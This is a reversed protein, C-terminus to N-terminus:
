LVPHLMHATTWRCLRAGHAPALAGRAAACNRRPHGCAALGAALFAASLPMLQQQQLGAKMVCQLMPPGFNFSCAAILHLASWRDCLLFGGTCGGGCDSAREFAKGVLRCFPAYPTPRPPSALDPGAHQGSQFGWLSAAAGCSAGHCHRWESDHALFSGVDVDHATLPGLLM